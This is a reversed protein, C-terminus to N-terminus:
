MTKMGIPMNLFVEAVRITMKEKTADLGANEAQTILSNLEVMKDRATTDLQACVSTSILLLLIKVYAKM